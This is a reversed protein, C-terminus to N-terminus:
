RASRRSGLRRASDELPWIPLTANGICCTPAAMFRPVPRRSGQLYLITDASSIGGNPLAVRCGLRYILDHVIPAVLSREFSAICAGLLRQSGRRV